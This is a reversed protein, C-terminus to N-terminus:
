FVLMFAMRLFVYRIPNPIAVDDEAEHYFMAGPIIVILFVALTIFAMTWMLEMDLFGPVPRSNRVDIPMTDRGARAPHHEADLFHASPCHYERVPISADSFMAYTISTFAIVFVLMFAMRLFVYRIPNPIAVDDEAEHYFMAGPIIVILFVALTIFAMTWM